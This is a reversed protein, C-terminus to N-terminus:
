IAICDTSDNQEKTSTKMAKDKSRGINKGDQCGGELPLSAHINVMNMKSVLLSFQQVNLAKTLLDAIQSNTRVHLLKIYGELM